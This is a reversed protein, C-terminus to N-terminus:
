CQSFAALDSIPIQPSLLARSCKSGSSQNHMMYKREVVVNIESRFLICAIKRVNIVKPEKMCYLICVDMVICM